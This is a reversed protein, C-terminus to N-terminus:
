TSARRMRATKVMNDKVQVIEILYDGIRISINADPIDELHELILGNLTRPGGTPLEWELSRNIDRLHTAGDIVFSGDEQPHIDQSSAALDTTFEGVIEELIDELTVLGLVDGYEDVVIGIRRKANQFNILQRNLSTGEPVFYPEVTYQMLEAKNIDEKLLLRSLKRLHLTGLMNNPDGRYVPLRTHQSARLTSMIEDMDDDIDVGVMENRPIMIDEVTVSELDLINLLMKQHKEPILGGAENVVTRLEEPSLHDDEGQGAPAGALRLFFMSVGNVLWVLPALLVQLPKLVVSAPFAIREPKMAAYTKPTIEAFVLMVLTIVVPAVAAGSDGLWRIALIAAVTATFNNVFNNGILIVSLLRDTRRLLEEVRRAARHGQRALHRLRYRNIAVMGTESSSFFASALILIVLATILWGDSFSDM